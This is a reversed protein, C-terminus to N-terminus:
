PSKSLEFFRGIAPVFDTRIKNGKIYLNFDLKNGSKFNPGDGWLVKFELPEGTISNKEKLVLTISKQRHFLTSDIKVKRNSRDSEPIVYTQIKGNSYRLTFEKFNDAFSPTIGISLTDSTLTRECTLEIVSITSIHYTSDNTKKLVGNFESYARNLYLHYIFDVTSDPKIRLLCEYPLLDTDSHASTGKFTQGFSEIIGNDFNYSGSLDAIRSKVSDKTQINALAIAFDKQNTVKGNRSYYKWTGIQTGSDSYDGEAKLRGNRYFEKYHGVFHDYKWGSIIVVKGRDISKVGKATQQQSFTSDLIHMRKDYVEKTVEKSNNLYRGDDSHLWNEPTQHKNLYVVLTDGQGFLLLSYALFIVTFISRM